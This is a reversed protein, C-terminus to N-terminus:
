FDEKNAVKFKHLSTNRFNIQYEAFDLFNPM